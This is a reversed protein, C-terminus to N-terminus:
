LGQDIAAAAVPDVPWTPVADGDVGDHAKNDNDWRRRWM